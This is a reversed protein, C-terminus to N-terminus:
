GTGYALGGKISQDPNYANLIYIDLTYICIWIYEINVNLDSNGTGGVVNNRDASVISINPFIVSL